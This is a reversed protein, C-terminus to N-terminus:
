RIYKNDEDANKIEIMTKKSLLDFCKITKEKTAYVLYLENNITNFIIFSNDYNYYSYADHTINKLTNVEDPILNNFMLNINIKEEHMLLLIKMINKSIDIIFARDKEFFDIIFNFAEDISEFNLNTSKIFEEINSILIYERSNFTIHTKNKTILINYTKNDKILTYNKSNNDNNENEM